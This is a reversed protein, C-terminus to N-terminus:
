TAYNGGNRMRWSAMQAGPIRSQALYQVLNFLNELENRSLYRRHDLAPDRQKYLSELAWVAEMLEEDTKGKIEETGWMAANTTEAVQAM